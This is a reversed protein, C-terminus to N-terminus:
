LLHMQEPAADYEKLLAAVTEKGLKVISQNGSVVHLQRGAINIIVPALPM